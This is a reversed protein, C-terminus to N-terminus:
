GSHKPHFLHHDTCRGQVKLWALGVPAQESCVLPRGHDLGGEPFTNWEMVGVSSYALSKSLLRFFLLCCFSFIKFWLMGHPCSSAMEFGICKPLFGLTLPYNIVRCTKAM